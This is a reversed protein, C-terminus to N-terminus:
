LLPSIADRVSWTAYVFLILSALGAMITGIHSVIKLRAWLKPGSTLYPPESIRKQSAAHYAMCYTTFHLLAIGFVSCAVGWAFWMMNTAANNLQGAVVKDNSVLSGIFALLAIAAGGNILMAMRLALGAATIAAENTYRRFEEIKDHVREAERRKLENPKPGAMHVEM